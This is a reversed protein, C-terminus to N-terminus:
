RAGHTTCHIQMVQMSRTHPQLSGGVIPLPSTLIRTHPVARVKPVPIGFNQYPQPLPFGIGPFCSSPIPENAATFSEPSVGFCPGETINM